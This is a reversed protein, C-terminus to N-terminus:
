ILSANQKKWDKGNTKPLLSPAGLVYSPKLRTPSAHGSPQTYLAAMESDAVSQARRLRFQYHQIICLM